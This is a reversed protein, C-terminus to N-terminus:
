PAHLQQVFSPGLKKALYTEIDVSVRNIAGGIIGYRDAVARLGPTFGTIIFEGQRKLFTVAKGFGKTRNTTLYYGQKNFRWRKRLFSVGLVGVGAQRRLAEQAVLKQWLSLTRGRKDKDPIKGSWEAMIRRQRVLFGKGARSLKQLLKFAGGQGKKIKWKQAWFGRFLQIRLDNGKQNLIEDETKKYRVRAYERLNRNLRNLASTDVLLFQGSINM